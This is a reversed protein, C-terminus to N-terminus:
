APELLSLGASSAAENPAPHRTTYWGPHNWPVSVDLFPAHLIRVPGYAHVSFGNLYQCVAQEPDGVM